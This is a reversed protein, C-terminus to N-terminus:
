GARKPSRPITDVTVDTVVIVVTTGWVVVIATAAVEVTATGFVDATAEEIVTVDVDSM